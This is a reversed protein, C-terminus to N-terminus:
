RRSSRRRVPSTMRRHRRRDPDAGRDKGCRREAVLDRSGSICAALALRDSKNQDAFARFMRGRLMRSTTLRHRWCHMRSRIGTASVMSWALASDASYWHASVIPIPSPWSLPVRAGMSYGMVHAEPIGLHDLLAVADEAM